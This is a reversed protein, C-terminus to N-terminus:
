WGPRMTLNYTGLRAELTAIENLLSDRYKKISEINLKTVNTVTQGTDLRYSEAGNIMIATIAADINILLSKATAIRQNIYAIDMCTIYQM